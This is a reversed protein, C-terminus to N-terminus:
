NLQDIIEGVTHSAQFRNMDFSVNYKSELSAMLGVFVLSDWGELEAMVTKETLVLSEDDLLDRMIEMIDQLNQSRNMVIEKHTLLNM